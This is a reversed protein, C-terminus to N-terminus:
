GRVEQAEPSDPYEDLLRQRQVEAEEVYGLTQYTEVLSLLAMPAFDTGPFNEVVDQFYVVAADYARRRVYFEGADYIKKALKDRLENLYTAAQKGEEAEPFNTAVSECHAIGAYTYEQDLQPRPSLQYYSDCIGFRATLAYPSSPYDEVLRQYHSAATIWERRRQYAQGLWLRVEPARPDGFHLQVFSELLPLARGLNGAQYYGAAQEYLEDATMASPNIRNGACGALLLALLLGRIWVLRVKIM